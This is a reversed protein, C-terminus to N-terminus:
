AYSESLEAKWTITPGTGAGAVTAKAQVYRARSLVPLYIIGQQATTSLNIVQKAGSVHTYYTANDDSHEITFTVSNAGSANSAASYTFKVWMPRDGQPAKRDWTPSSTTATSTTSSQLVDLASEM